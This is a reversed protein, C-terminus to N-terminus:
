DDYGDDYGYGSDSDYEDKDANIYLGDELEEFGAPMQMVFEDADVDFTAVVEPMEDTEVHIFRYQEGSQNADEWIFDDADLTFEEETDENRIAYFGMLAMVLEEKDFVNLFLRNTDSSLKIVDNM